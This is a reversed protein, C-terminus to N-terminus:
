VDKCDTEQPIVLVKVQIDKGGNSLPRILKRKGQNELLGRKILIDTSRKFPKGKLIDKKYSEAPILYCGKDFWGILNSVTCLEQLGIFRNRQSTLISIVEEIFTDEENSNYPNGHDNLWAKFCTQACRWADSQKWDNGGNKWTTINGAGLYNNFAGSALAGGVAVLGFSRCVRKIQPHYQTVTNAEVFERIKSDLFDRLSQENENRLAVLRELYVDLAHGNNKGREAKLYEVLQFSNEFESPIAEFIGYGAGVDAPINALRVQQGTHITVKYILGIEALGMEGTSLGLLRWTKRTKATMNSNARATGMGNSITYIWGPIEKGKDSSGIEDLFFIGDNADLCSNELGGKRTDWTPLKGGKLDGEITSAMELATSKGCSSTGVFHFLQNGLWGTLQLLPASFEASMAFVIRSSYPAYKSLKEQWDKLNGNRSITTPEESNPDYVIEQNDGDGIVKDPRVFYYRGENTQTWGTKRVLQKRPAKMNLLYDALSGQKNPSREEIRFCRDLLLRRVASPVNLDQADSLNLTVTDGYRNKFKVSRGSDSKWQNCYTYLVEILDSIKEKRDPDVGTKVFYIGDKEDGNERKYYRGATSECQFYMGDNPKVEEAIDEPAPAKFDKKNGLEQGEIESPKKKTQTM